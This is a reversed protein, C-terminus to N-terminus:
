LVVAVVVGGPRRASPPSTAQAVAPASSPAEAARGEAAPVRSHAEVAARDEKAPVHAQARVRAAASANYARPPPAEMFGGDTMLPADRRRLAHCSDTAEWRRSARSARALRRRSPAERRGIRTSGSGRRRGGIPRASTSSSTRSSTATCRARGVM